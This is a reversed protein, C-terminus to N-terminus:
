RQRKKYFVVSLVGILLVAVLIVVIFFNDYEFTIFRDKEAKKFRDPYHENLYKKVIKETEDLSVNADIDIGNEEFVKTTVPGLPRLTETELSYAFALDYQMNYIFVEEQQVTALAAPLDRSYGMGAIEYKGESPEWVLLDGNIVGNQYFPAVWEGIPEVSITMKKDIILQNVAIIRGVSLDSEWKNASSLFEQYNEQVVKEVKNPIHNTVKFDEFGLLLPFLIISLLIKIRNL